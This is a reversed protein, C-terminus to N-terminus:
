RWYINGVVEASLTILYASIHKSNLFSLFFISISSDHKIMCFLFGFNFGSVRGDTM